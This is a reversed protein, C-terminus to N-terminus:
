FNNEYEVELTSFEETSPNWFDVELINQGLGVQALENAAADSIRLGTADSVAKQGHHVFETIDKARNHMEVVGELVIVTSGAGDTNMAYRADKARVWCSADEAQLPPSRKPVGLVMQGKEMHVTRVRTSDMSSYGLLFRTKSRAEIRMYDPYLRTGFRTKSRAEIRMYDPHFRIVLQGNEPIEFTQGSPPLDGIKIGSALTTDRGFTQVGGLVQRVVAMYPERPAPKGWTLSLMGCLLVWSYKM